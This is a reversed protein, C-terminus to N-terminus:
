LHSDVTYTAIFFIGAPFSKANSFGLMVTSVSWGEVRPKKVAKSLKGVTRSNM